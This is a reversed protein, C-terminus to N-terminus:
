VGMEREELEVALVEELEVALVEELEVALAEEDWRSARFSSM